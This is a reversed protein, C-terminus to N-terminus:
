TKCWQLLLKRLDDEVYPKGLHGDMGAALAAEKDTSFTKATVAIVPTRIRGTRQELSRLERTAQYGDMVPMQCDMLVLDFSDAQLTDLAQQGNM